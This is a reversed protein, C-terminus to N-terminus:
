TQWGHRCGPWVRKQEPYMVSRTRASHMVDRTGDARVFEEGPAARWGALHGREHVVATCFSADSIYGWRFTITCNYFDAPQNESGAPWEYSAEALRRPDTLDGRRVLVQTGGCPVGWKADAVAAASDTRSAQAPAAAALAALGAIYYPFRSRAM